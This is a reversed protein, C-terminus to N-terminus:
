QLQKSALENVNTMTGEERKYFYVVVGAPVHAMFEEPCVLLPASGCISGPELGIVSAIAHCGAMSVASAVVQKTPEDEWIILDILVPIEM